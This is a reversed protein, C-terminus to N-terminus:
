QTVAFYLTGTQGRANSVYIPYTGPTVQQLYQACVYGQGLVDCPSVYAPITFYLTTGNNSSTLNATGGVGFHVTNGTYAFGTGTLTVLTGVRGTAPALNSLVLQDAAGFPSVTITASPTNKAGANNSVTFVLMYVGPSQYAHTFTLTQSTSPALTQSASVSGQYLGEDGWRVSTTIYSTGYASLTITWVGQVGAILRAPGSVGTISPPLANQEISTVTFPLAGSTAGRENTVSVNYTGLAMSQSGYGTLQSPVIFSLSTGDSSTINTIVGPGFHVTNGRQTFGSGFVTVSTGVGGSTPYLSNINANWYSGGGWGDVPASVLGIPRGCNGFNIYWPCGAAGGSTITFPLSNSTGRTNTVYIQYTGPATYQNGFYCGFGICGANLSSPVTFTLSTGDSAINGSVPNSGFYVNNYVADFGGGYITVSTGVAGATVPLSNIFVNGTNTYAYSPSVPNIAPVTSYYSPNPFYSNPNAGCTSGAILVRTQSDAIGSQALGRQSQFNLVAKGSETGFYGTVMWSGSGPYNQALLFNQLSTVDEGRSGQSLDRALTVCNLNAVYPYSYSQAMAVDASLIGLVAVVVSIYVKNM